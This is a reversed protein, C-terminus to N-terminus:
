GVMWEVEKRQVPGMLWNGVDGGPRSTQVSGPRMTHLPMGHGKRRM